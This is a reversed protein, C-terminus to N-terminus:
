KIRKFHYAFDLSYGAGIIILLAGSNDVAKNILLGSDKTIGIRTKDSQCGGFIYPIGHCSFNKNDLHFLGNHKLKGGLQISGIKLKEKRLDFQLKRKTIVKIDVYYKSVSDFEITNDCIYRYLNNYSNDEEIQESDGNKLYEKDPLLEYTGAILDFNEDTLKIKDKKVKRGSYTACSQVLIAIGIITFFRAILKTKM